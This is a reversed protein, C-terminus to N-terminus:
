RGELADAWRHSGMIVAESEIIRLRAETEKATWRRWRGAQIEHIGWETAPPPAGQCFHPWVISLFGDDCAIPEDDDVHSHDVWAGPHSHVQALAIQGQAGRLWQGLAAITMPGVSIGGTRHYAGEGVPSVISFVVGEDAFCRGGWVVESEVRARGEARLLQWSRELLTRPLWLRTLAAPIM